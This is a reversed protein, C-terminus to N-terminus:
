NPLKLTTRVGKLLEAPDDAPAAADIHVAEFM